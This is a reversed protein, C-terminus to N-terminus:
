IKWTYIYTNINYILVTVANVIAPCKCWVILMITCECVRQSTIPQVLLEIYKLPLMWVSLSCHLGDCGMEAHTHICWLEKMSLRTLLYHSFSALPHTDRTAIFTIQKSYIHFQCSVVEEYYINLVSLPWINYNALTSSCHHMFSV